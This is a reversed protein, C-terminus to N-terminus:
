EGADLLLDLTMRLVQLMDCGDQIFMDAGTTRRTHESGVVLIREAGAARLASVVAEGQEAYAEDTGCLCAIPPVTAAFCNTIASTVQTVPYLATAIGAVALTNTAYAARPGFAAPTGLAALLVTPRTGAAAKAEARDRLAEFPEADRVSRLAESPVAPQPRCPVDLVRVHSDSFSPFRSTGVIGRRLEVFGAARRRATAAVDGQLVGTKLAAEIGGAREINQFLAWARECLGDTLAELGGAGAAPDDVKALCAEDITVRGVNRALRRAADDPLGLPLTMPLVTVGDAGGVGAAFAAATARMVNVWPDYRTMMRWSTEAHLRLPKADLGSATEVRAWLRRAARMKAIGLFVDADVPLLWAIADRAAALGLGSAELRRLYQVATALTAALERAEGAGAEHYPRGDALLPRGALGARRSLDLVARLDGLAEPCATRAFMGIPDFGLDIVLGASTLRREVVLDAIASVAARADKGADLRVSILDLEVGDFARDFVKTDAALGFGRAYPSAACVVALADAGGELDLLASRNALEPDPHDVRQSVLWAEAGRWPQPQDTSVRPYLPLIPLGDDTESRLADLGGRVTREALARWQADTAPETM